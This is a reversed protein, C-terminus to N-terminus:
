FKVVALISCESMVVKENNYIKCDFSMIPGRCKRCIAEILLHMKPLIPKRFKANEIGMFAVNLKLSFANEVIKPVIFCSAQAMMEVQIVGPFIPNGPFHGTFLPLDPNTYFNALIKTGVIEDKSIIEDDGYQRHEGSIAEVSDIFLFPDRHPLLAMVLDKNYLM